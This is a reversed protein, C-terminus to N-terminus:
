LDFGVVDMGAALERLYGNFQERWRAERLYDRLKPQAAEFPLPRGSEFADLRVVHVGYRTVVPEAHIEGPKLKVLVDEFERVTDGTGLQGLSGGAAASSCDSRERALEEFRSPDKALIALTEQASAGARTRRQEDDPPALFLIHSAEFLHPSLLREGCREYFARCAAEDPEDAWVNEELLSAIAKDEDGRPISAAEDELRGTRVAEQLLIKRTLLARTAQREAEVRSPAPYYQMERHIEDESIQVGNVQIAM